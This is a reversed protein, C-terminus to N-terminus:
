KGGTSLEVLVPFHDSPFKGHYTDTLLGWKQAKFDKTTFVHDIIENGDLKKGFANFSANVAYPNKVQKYTDFLLGSNAVAQYWESTHDGNFDGTLVVPEQGAIEKIKSLILKSSEKRAQVGQHDYHVNFFYFKKKTQGDQLYVWSCIRNCCTADWGLSPKDPTQSLWFDGKKLLKFRDKKFFIASHEGKEQGDDRGKGYREYSPLAKSIDDLQNKLGEQTGFIDYDHFRLLSAVVPARDVWLNGVDNPNDYRINFTGVTLQQARLLVPLSCLVFLIFLIRHKM